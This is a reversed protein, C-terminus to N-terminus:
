SLFYSVHKKWDSHIQKNRERTESSFRLLFHFLWFWFLSIQNKTVPQHLSLVMFYSVKKEIQIFKNIEKVHKQHFNSPSFPVVLIMVSIQYKIKLWQSICRFFCLILFRKKWDSNIQKNRERTESSFRLLSHFLWFWFLSIQYKTKLWRSICHFFCLILFM